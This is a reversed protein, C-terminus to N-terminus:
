WWPTPPFREPRRAVRSFLYYELMTGIQNGNILIYKGDPGKFGVGMRDADPDTAMIIDANEKEALELAM